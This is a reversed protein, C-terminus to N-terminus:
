QNDRGCKTCVTESVLAGGCVLCRGKREIETVADQYVTVANLFSNVSTAGCLSAAQRAADERMRARVEVNEATIDFLAVNM